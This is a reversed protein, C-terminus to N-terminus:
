WFISTYKRELEQLWQERYRDAYNTYVKVEQARYSSGTGAHAMGAAKTEPSVPAPAEEVAEHCSPAWGVDRRGGRGGVATERGVFM